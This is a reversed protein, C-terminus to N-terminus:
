KNPPPLERDSIEILINQKQEFYCGPKKSSIIVCDRLPSLESCQKEFLYILDQLIKKADGSDTSSVIPEKNWKHIVRRLESASITREKYHEALYVLYKLGSSRYYNIKRVLENDKIIEWEDKNYDHRIHFRYIKVKYVDYFRRKIENHYYNYADRYKMTPGVDNSFWFNVVDSNFDDGMKQFQEHKRLLKEREKKQTVTNNLFNLTNNFSQVIANIVPRVRVFLLEHPNLEPFLDDPYITDDIIPPYGVLEEPTRDLIILLRDNYEPMVINNYFETKKSENLKELGIILLNGKVGRLDCSDKKCEIIYLPGLTKQLINIFQDFKENEALFCFRFRNRGWFKNKYKAKEAYEELTLKALSSSEEQSRNLLYLASVVLIYKNIDAIEEWEIIEDIRIRRFGILRESYCYIMTSVASIFTEIVVIESEQVVRHIHDDDTTFIYKNEELLHRIKKFEKKGRITPIVQGILYSYYIQLVEFQISTFLIEDIYELMKSPLSNLKKLDDLLRNTLQELMENETKPEKLERDGGIDIVLVSKYQKAQKILM